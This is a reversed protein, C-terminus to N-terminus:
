VIIVLEKSSRNGMQQGIFFTCRQFLTSTTQNNTPITDAKITSTQTHFSHCPRKTTCVSTTIHAFRTPLSHHEHLFITPYTFMLSQHQCSTFTRTSNYPTKPPNTTTNESLNLKKQSPVQRHIHYFDKVTQYIPQITTHFKKLSMNIIMLFKNLIIEIMKKNNGVVTRTISLHKFAQNSLYKVIFLFICVDCMCM